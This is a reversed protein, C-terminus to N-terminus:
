GVFLEISEGVAYNELLLPILQVAAHSIKLSVPERVIHASDYLREERGAQQRTWLGSGAAGRDVFASDGTLAEKVTHSSCPLVM